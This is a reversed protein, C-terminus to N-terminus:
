SLLSPHPHTTKNLIAFLILKGEGWGEGQLLLALTIFFIWNFSVVKM